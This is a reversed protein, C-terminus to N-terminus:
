RQDYLRSWEPHCEFHLDVNLANGMCAHAPRHHSENIKRTRYEREGEADKM